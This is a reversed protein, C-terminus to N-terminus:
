AKIQIEEVSKIYRASEEVAFQNAKFAEKSMEESLEAKRKLRKLEDKANNIIFRNCGNASAFEIVFEIPNSNQNM